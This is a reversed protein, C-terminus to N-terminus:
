LGFLDTAKQEIMSKSDWGLAEMYNTIKKEAKKWMADYDIVVDDVFEPYTNTDVPLGIYDSELSKIRCVFFKEGLFIQRDKNGCLSNYYIAARVHYPFGKMSGTMEYSDMYKKLSTTPMPESIEAITMNYFQEKFKDKEEIIDEREYGDLVMEVMNKLFDKVAKATNAKKIELGMIKLKDVRKGEDDVVHMAYRKKSAFFSKDSVIERDTTIVHSRDDPCNFALKVFDPFKENTLQGVEDCLDVMDDIGSSKEYVSEPVELIISDSDGAIANSIHYFKFEPPSVSFDFFKVCNNFKPHGGPNKNPEYGFEDWSLDIDKKWGM